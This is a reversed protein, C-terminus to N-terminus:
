NFNPQEVGLIPLTIDGDRDIRILDGDSNRSLVGASRLAETIEHSSMGCTNTYECQFHIHTLVLGSRTRDSSLYVDTQNWDGQRTEDHIECSTWVVAKNFADRNETSSCTGGRGHIALLVQNLNMSNKLGRIQIVADRLTPVPISDQARALAQPQVKARHASASLGADAEAYDVMYDFAADSSQDIIASLALLSLGLFVAAANGVMRVASTSKKNDLPAKFWLVLFAIPVLAIWAARENGYIDLSRALSIMGYLYGFVMQGFFLIAVSGGIGSPETLNASALGAISLMSQFFLLGAVAVFYPVRRLTWSRGRHILLALAFGFLLIGISWAWRQIESQSLLKIAMDEIM